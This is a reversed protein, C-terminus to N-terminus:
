GHNRMGKGSSQAAFFIRGKDSQPGDRLIEVDYFGAEALAGRWFDLSHAYEAHEEQERSWLAGVRQFIDMGYVLRNEQEDFEARWLCLADASEDVFTQGDLARYREPAFTDFILVGGIEMFLALRRLLEGVEAATLYNVSDLSCYVADVTGYLDLEQMRQCLLIPPVGDSDAFKDLAESLMEASADAAILEYGRDTMERALTGTGCALDLLVRPTKGRTSFIHEYFDAFAAYPVDGTFADYQGALGAYSKM